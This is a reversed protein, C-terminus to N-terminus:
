LFVSINDKKNPVNTSTCIYEASDQETINSISLALIKSVKDSSANVFSHFSVSIRPDYRFKGNIERIPYSTGDKALYQDSGIKRRVWYMNIDPHDPDWDTVCDLTMNDGVNLVRTVSVSGNCFYTRFALCLLIITSANLLAM